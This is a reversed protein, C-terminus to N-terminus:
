GGEHFIRYIVGARDDSVLLAGDPAVACDVPRGWATAGSLWGQAFIEKGAVRGGELRARVVRYGIPSSRNWSGHECFLIDGRYDPPFMGGTYFRMGLAAVHAPLKLEAPAFRGCDRGHNLDPDPVGAHCFPFGFHLGPRPARHLSDPPQHDGMWDRGNNTFWLVATEPHWDMGVSNRIGRAFVERGSGDPRLRIITAFPDEVPCVNCPAGIAVYLYGDPGMAMYRWEHHDSEPLEAVLEPQPPDDLRGAIGAYRLIKTITAVYLAGDHFALGNPQALGRAVVRRKVARAGRNKTTIAYVEQERTGVFLVGGDGWRLTRAHPAEAYVEVAFGSPLSLSELPLEGWASPSPLAPMVGAAAAPAAAALWLGAALWALGARAM